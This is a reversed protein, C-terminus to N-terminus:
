SGVLSGIVMEGFIVSSVGRERREVEARSPRGEEVRWRWDWSEDRCEASRVLAEARQAVREEFGCGDKV